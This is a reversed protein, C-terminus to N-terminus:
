QQRYESIEFLHGDPDHFFCRTEAGHDVPATIFKVGREKLIEFSQKCDQVRITFSHSVKHKNIPPTFSTEPKDKTPGGPTVLLLWNGLFELVLSNGGYERYIKAGLKKVYFEKAHEMNSIVLISTLASHKFPDM